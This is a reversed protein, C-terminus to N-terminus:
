LLLVEEEELLREDRQVLRLAHREIVLLEAIADHLVDLLVEVRDHRHQPHSSQKNTKQTEHSKQRPQKVCIISRHCLYHFLSKIHRHYPNHIYTSQISRNKIHINILITIDMITCTATIVFM